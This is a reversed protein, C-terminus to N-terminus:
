TLEYSKTNFTELTSRLILRLNGLSSQAMSTFSMKNFIKLNPFLNCLRFWKLQLHRHSGRKRTTMVIVTPGLSFFFARGFIKLTNISLQIVIWKRGLWLYSPTYIYIAPVNWIMCYGGVFFQSVGHWNHHKLGRSIPGVTDRM